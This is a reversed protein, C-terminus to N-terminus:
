RMEDIKSAVIFDNVHLGNIKHTYLEIRLKKYDYIYLNPHHGEDEALAGIKKVWEVADVFNKATMELVLWGKESVVWDDKLQKMLIEITEQDLPDEGGQCAQCKQKKLDSM